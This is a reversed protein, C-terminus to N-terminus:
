VSEDQASFGRSHLSKRRVEAATCCLEHNAALAATEDTTSSEM